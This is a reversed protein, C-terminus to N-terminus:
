VLELAHVMVRRAVKAGQGFNSYVFNGKETKRAHHSNYETIANVADWLTKGENGAGKRYLSWLKDWNRPKSDSDDKGMATLFLNEVQGDSVTTLALLEADGKYEAMRVNVYDLTETIGLAEEKIGLKHRLKTSLDSYAMAFTNQCIVRVTSTGAALHTTGNHSNLLTLFGEHELGAVRYQQAMKAQIFVKNGNGLYGSNEITLLGESVLPSVLDKFFKNGVSEYSDSMISLVDHTDDRLIAKQGDVRIFQGEVQIFVPVEQIEWNLKDNTAFNM